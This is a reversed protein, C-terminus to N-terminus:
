CWWLSLVLVDVIVQTCNEVLIVEVFISIITDIIGQLRELKVMCARLCIDRGLSCVVKGCVM